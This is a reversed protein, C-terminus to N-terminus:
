HSRDDGLSDGVTGESWEFAQRERVEDEGMEQHATDPDTQKM